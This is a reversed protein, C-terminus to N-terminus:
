IAYLTTEQMRTQYQRIYYRYDLNLDELFDPIEIVDEPKHYLSIALKPRYEQITEISRKLAELESGEVDYKIYTAKRGKLVHDISDAKVSNNGNACIGSAYTEGEAASFNLTTEGSWTACEYLEYEYGSQKLRRDCELYNSHEPEFAVIKIKGRCLKGYNLSTQGNYCGADVFVEDESKPYVEKIDFYQNAMDCYLYGEQPILIDSERFGERILQQYIAAQHNRQLVAIVIISDKYKKYLNAPNCIKTGEWETEWLRPNNDAFCDVKRNIYKMSRCTLRGNAGAGFIVISKGKNESNRQEYQNLRWCGYTRKGGNSLIKDLGTYFEDQNRKILYQLRLDFLGRSEEDQIKKMFKSLNEVVKEYQM